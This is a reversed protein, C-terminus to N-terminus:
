TRVALGDALTRRYAQWAPLAGIAVAAAIVVILVGADGASWTTSDLVLGYRQQLLPRAALLVLQNIMVGLLTGACALVAAESIFLAFVHAPRAGVSRLIAIERRRENLSTLITTLLCILGAIVVMAGVITLLNEVVGLVDWLQQLAVGPMIALLPEGRYDNISRQLDFISLKSKVGILIATVTKPTLDQKRADDASIRSAEPAQSGSQWDIHIAEIAELSVHVTRDVPTGTPKLIGAVVFPKDKHQAFSVAGTGHAVIMSDGVHYGLKRAVESGIVADYLDATAHGAAFELTRERGFRFYRYYNDDTGLVRFGRHSDGLSLPIAWAVDRQKSLNHYLNWSVNNTADGIRFVSYLLLNLQGSRAGVILDTGSVTSAFASHAQVSLQRVSLLLAVSIAISAATLLASVRRNWLSQLALSLLTM